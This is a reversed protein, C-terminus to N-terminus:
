EEISGTIVEELARKLYYAARERGQRDEEERKVSYEVDELEMVHLHYTCTYETHIETGIIRISCLCLPYPNPYEAILLDLLRHGTPELAAISDDDLAALITKDTYPSMEEGKV